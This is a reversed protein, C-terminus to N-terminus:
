KVTSCGAGFVRWPDLGQVCFSVGDGMSAFGMGRSVAYVLTRVSGDTMVADGICHDHLIISPGNLVQYRLRPAVIEDIEFGRHWTRQEAWDFRSEIRKLIAPDDCRDAITIAADGTGDGYVDAAGSIGAFAFCLTLGAIIAKIIIM